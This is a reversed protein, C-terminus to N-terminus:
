YTSPFHSLALSSFLLSPTNKWLGSFFTQMLLQPFSPASHLSIKPSACPSIIQELLDDPQNPSLSPAETDQPGPCSPPLTTPLHDFAPSSKLATTALWHDTLNVFKAVGAKSSLFIVVHWYSGLLCSFTARNQQKKGSFSSLLFQNESIPFSCNQSFFTLLPSVKSMSLMLQRGSGCLSLLM